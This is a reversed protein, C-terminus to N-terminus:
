AFCKVPWAIFFLAVISFTTSNLSTYWTNSVNILTCIDIKALFYQSNASSSFSSKKTLWRSNKPEGSSRLVSIVTVWFPWSKGWPCIKTFKIPSNKPHMKQNFKKPSNKPHIRKPIKQTFKEPSSKPYIKQTFKMPSYNNQHIKQTIKRPSNKSYNKPHIKQTIKKPSNKSRYDKLWQM